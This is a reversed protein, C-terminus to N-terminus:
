WVCRVLLIPKKEVRKQTGVGAEELPLFPLPFLPGGRGLVARVVVPEAIQVFPGTHPILPLAAPALSGPTSRPQTEKVSPRLRIM